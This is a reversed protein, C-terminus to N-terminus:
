ISRHNSPVPWFLSIFDVGMRRECIRQIERHKGLFEEPLMFTLAHIPYNGQFDDVFMIERIGRFEECFHVIADIQSRTIDMRFGERLYKTCSLHSIAFKRAGLVSYAFYMGEWTVNYFFDRYPKGFKPQAFRKYCLSGEYPILILGKFSSALNRSPIGILTVDPDTFRAWDALSSINIEFDAKMGELIWKALNRRELALKTSLYERMGGLLSFGDEPEILLVDVRGASVEEEFSGEYFHSIRISEGFRNKLVGSKYDNYDNNEFNM